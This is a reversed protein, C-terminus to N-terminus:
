KGGSKLRALIKSDEESLTTGELLDPRNRLTKRLAQERRWRRIEQHNGNILVEPVAMARFDAPRTYHPYDLLGGSGCTSDPGDAAGAEAHATFSEQRTSADNGVAGPLLRTIAEIVVAAALEGGSLVYDGISLERDALFDAVREDVGEYRGCIFVIRDLTALESAVRQTFREGQASLLIVSQKARGAVRDDARTQRSTLQLSELCEFLPEPKLVMGEGGGFPRDDVTRHRDHTFQRLDHVEIKALGMECARRTIGHDLPGRFFDPFITVIDAKM